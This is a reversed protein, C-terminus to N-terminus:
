TPLRVGENEVVSRQKKYMYVSCVVMRCQVGGGKLKSTTGGKFKSTKGGKIVAVISLNAM